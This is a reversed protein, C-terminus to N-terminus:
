LGAPNATGVTTALSDVKMQVYPLIIWLLGVLYPLLELQPVFRTAVLSAVFAGVWILNSKQWNTKVQKTM